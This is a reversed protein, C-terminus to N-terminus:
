YTREGTQATGRWARGVEGVDAVNSWINLLYQVSIGFVDCLELRLGASGSNADLESERLGGLNIVGHVLARPDM